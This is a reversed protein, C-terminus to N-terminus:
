LKKFECVRKQYVSYYKFGCDKLVDAAIDFGRAIDSPVHADSGVTIVEGGMDHYRKIIDKCPNLDKLGYRIAGTNVEIGKEMDILKELIKDIVDKYKDYSYEKDMTKGYRVVYDLHGFVDFNSFMGLMKLVEDFYQRYAEEDARGEYFCPYYPDQRDIIHASAIIFDFDYSKAYVALEKRLHPQIGLEVGFNLEIQDKYKDRLSLLDYLYSDTNLDFDGDKLTADPVNKHINDYPYDIDMHDTFTMIKLGKNIGELIMEEMPYDCDGSHISHLHYDALIAM